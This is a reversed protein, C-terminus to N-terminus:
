ASKAGKKGWKILLTVAVGILALLIVAPVLKTKMYDSITSFFSDGAGGLPDTPGTQAFAASAMGFLMLAAFSVAASVRRVHTMM